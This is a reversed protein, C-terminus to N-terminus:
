QMTFSKAISPPPQLNVNELVSVTIGKYSSAQSSSSSADSQPLQETSSQPQSGGGQFRAQRQKRQEMIKQAMSPTSSPSSDTSYNALKDSIKNISADFSSMMIKPYDSLYVPPKLANQVRENQTNQILAQDDFERDPNDMDIGLDKLVSDLEGFLEKKNQSSQLKQREIQQSNQLDALYLDFINVYILSIDSVASLDDSNPQSSGYQSSALVLDNVTLLQEHPLQVIPIEPAAVQQQVLDSAILQELQKISKSRMTSLANKKLMLVRSVQGSQKWWNVLDLVTDDRMLKIANDTSLVKEPSLTCEYLNYMDNLQEDIGCKQLMLVIVEQATTNELLRVSKYNASDELYIQISTFKENEIVPLKPVIPQEQPLKQASKQVALTSKQDNQVVQVKKDSLSDTKLAVVSVKNKIKTSSAKSLTTPPDSQTQQSGDNAKIKKDSGISRKSKSRSVPEQKQSSSDSNISQQEETMTNLKMQSYPRTPDVEFSQITESQTTVISYSNVDRKFSFGFASKERKRDSAATSHDSQQKKMEAPKIADNLGSRDPSEATSSSTSGFRGRLRNLFKGDSQKNSKPISLASGARLTRTPQSFESADSKGVVERDDFAVDRNKVKKRIEASATPAEAILSGVGLLARAKSKSKKNKKVQDISLGVRFREEDSDVEEQIVDSDGSSSSDFMSKMKKKKESASMTPQATSSAKSDEDKSLPSAYPEILRKLPEPSASKSAEELSPRKLTSNQQLLSKGSYDVSMVKQMYAKSARVGIIGQEIRPVKSASSNSITLGCDALMVLTWFVMRDDAVQSWDGRPLTCSISYVEVELPNMDYMINHSFQKSFPASTAPDSDFPRLGSQSKASANDQNKCQSIAVSFAEYWDELIEASEHSYQLDLLSQQESSQKCSILLMTQESDLNINMINSVPIYNLLIWSVNEFGSQVGTTDCFLVMLFKEFLMLFQRGGIDNLLVGDKILFGSKTGRFLCDSGYLDDKPDINGVAKLGQSNPINRKIFQSLLAHKRKMKADAVDRLLKSLVGMSKTLFPHDQHEVATCRLIAYIHLPYKLFRQFPCYLLQLLSLGSKRAHLFEKFGPKSCLQFYVSMAEMMNSCYLKYLELGQVMNLIKKGVILVDNESESADNIGSKQSLSDKVQRSLTQSDSAKLQLSVNGNSTSSRLERIKNIVDILESVGKLFSTHFAILDKFNSFLIAFEKLSILDKRSSLPSYYKRELLLLMELYTKDKEYMEVVLQTRLEPTLADFEHAYSLATEYHPKEEYDVVLLREQSFLQHDLPSQRPALKILNFLSDIVRDANGQYVLDEPAFVIREKDVSPHHKNLYSHLSLLYVSINEISIIDFQASWSSLGMHHSMSSSSGSQNPRNNSVSKSGTPNQHLVLRLMDPWLREAIHMLMCGDKLELMFKQRVMSATGDQSQESNVIQVEKQDQLSDQETHKIEQAKSDSSSQLKAVQLQERIDKSIQLDLETQLWDLIAQIKDLSEEM